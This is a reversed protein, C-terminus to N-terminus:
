KSLRVNYSITTTRTHQEPDGFMCHPSYNNPHTTGSLYILGHKHGHQAASLSPAMSRTLIPMISNHAMLPCWWCASYSYNHTSIKNIIRNWLMGPSNFWKLKILPPMLPCLLTSITIGDWVQLSGYFWQSNHTNMVPTWFVIFYRKVGRKPKLSFREVMLCLLFM